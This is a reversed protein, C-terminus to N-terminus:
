DGNDEEAGPKPLMAALQQYVRDIMWDPAKLRSLCMYQYLLPKEHNSSADRLHIAEHVLVCSAEVRATVGSANHEEFWPWDIKITRGEPGWQAWAAYRVGARIIPSEQTVAGWYPGMAYAGVPDYLSLWLVAWSLFLAM